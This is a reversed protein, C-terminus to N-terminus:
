SWSREWSQARGRLYTPLAGTQGAVEWAVLAALPLIFKELRAREIM